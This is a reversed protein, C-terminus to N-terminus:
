HREVLEYDVYEGEHLVGRHASAGMELRGEGWHSSQWDVIPADLQVLASQPADVESDDQLVVRARGSNGSVPEEELRAALELFEEEEARDMDPEPPPAESQGELLADVVRAEQLPLGYMDMLEMLRMLRQEWRTPQQEQEKRHRATDMSMNRRRCRQALP